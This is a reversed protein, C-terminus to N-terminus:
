STWTCGTAQSNAYATCTVVVNDYAHFSNGPVIPYVVETLQTLDFVYPAGTGVPTQCVLVTVTGPTGTTTLGNSCSTTTAAQAAPAGLGAGAVAAFVAAGVVLARKMM